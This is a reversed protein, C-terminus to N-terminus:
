RDLLNCIIIWFIYSSCKPDVYKSHIMPDTLRRLLAGAPKSIQKAIAACKPELIVSITIDFTPFLCQWHAIVVGLLLPYNNSVYLWSVRLKQARPLINFCNLSFSTHAELARSIVAWQPHDPRIRLGGLLRAFRLCAKPGYLVAACQCTSVSRQCFAVFPLVLAIWSEPSFLSIVM